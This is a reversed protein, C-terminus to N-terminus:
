CKFSTLQNGNCRLETLTTNSSVNLSTLKNEFCKLVVLSTYDEIGTLDSISKFTVDLSTVGEINWTLVYNDLVDDYGLDILAQEFNDNPVYMNPTCDTNYTATNDKAWGIPRNNTIYDFTICKLNPNNTLSFNTIIANNWKKINVSTFQNNM